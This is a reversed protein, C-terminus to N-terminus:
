SISFYGTRMKLSRSAVGRFLLLNFQGVLLQIVHSAAQENLSIRDGAGLAALHEGIGCLAFPMLLGALASPLM